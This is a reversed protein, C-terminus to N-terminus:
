EQPPKKDEDKKMMSQAKEEASKALEQAKDSAASAMESAKQGAEQAKRKVEEIAAKAKESNLAETAADKAKNAWGMINGFLGGKEKKDNENEPIDSM